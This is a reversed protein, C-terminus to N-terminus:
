NRPRDGDWARRGRGRWLSRARENVRARRTRLSYRLRRGDSEGETLRSAVATRTADWCLTPPTFISSPFGCFKLTGILFRCKYTLVVVMKGWRINSKALGTHLDCIRRFRGPSIQVEARARVPIFQLSKQRCEAALYRTLASGM